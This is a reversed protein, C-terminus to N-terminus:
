VESLGLGEVVDQVIRSLDQRDGLQREVRRSAQSVGSEGVGFRAGIEKLPRGSYRHSVYLAIRRAMRQDSPVREAVEREIAELSSRVGLACVAPVDRGKARGAIFREQVWQVFSEGGLVTSGKVQDLPNVVEKGLEAEVFQRYRHQASAEDRGFQPLILERTLWCPSPAAGIYAAYSSWAHEEPRQAVSARVPNLHIYRSLEEAYDEMEVLIAKYRGQLLHGSRHRKVNFYTTYAGNVHRMVQSLNGDPTEVLLHYHNTMLCYAHVVAGYRVTASELYELFRERDRRSRYIEKRENGRSTVHYFAGPYEMRSPRAM